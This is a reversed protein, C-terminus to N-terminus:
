VDRLLRPSSNMNLIFGIIRAIFIHRTKVTWVGNIFKGGRYYYVMPGGNYHLIGDLCNLKPGEYVAVCGIRIDVIVRM